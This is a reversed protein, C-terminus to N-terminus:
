PQKKIQGWNIGQNYRLYGDAIVLPSQINNTYLQGTGLGQPM